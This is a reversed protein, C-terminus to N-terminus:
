GNSKQLTISAVEFGNLKRNYIRLRSMRGRGVVDGGSDGFLRIPISTQFVGAFATGGNVDALSMLRGNIFMSQTHATSDYTMVVHAWGMGGPAALQTLAVVPPTSNYTAEGTETWISGDTQLICRHQYSPATTGEVADFEVIACNQDCNGKTVFDGKGNNGVQNNMFMTWCSISWDGSNLMNTTSNDGTIYSNTTQPCWGMVPDNTPVINNTSLPTWIIGAVLDTYPGAVTNTLPLNVILGSTPITNGNAFLYAHATYVESSALEVPAVLFKLLTFQAANTSATAGIAKVTEDVNPAGLTLGTDGGNTYVHGGSTISLALPQSLDAWSFNVAHEVGGYIVCLLNSHLFWGASGDATCALVQYATNTGYMQLVWTLTFPSGNTITQGVPNTISTNAGWPGVGMPQNTPLTSGLKTWQQGGISDTWNTFAQMFPSATKQPLTQADLEFTYKDLPGSPGPANTVPAPFSKGGPDNMSMPQCLAVSAM